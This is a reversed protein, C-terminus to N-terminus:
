RSALSVRAQTCCECSADEGGKDNNTTVYYDENVTRETSPGSVFSYVISFIPFRSFGSYYPIGAVTITAIPRSSAINRNM